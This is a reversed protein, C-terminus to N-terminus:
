NQDARITHIHCGVLTEPDLLMQIDSAIPNDGIKRTQHWADLDLGNSIAKEEAASSLSEKDFVEIEITFTYKEEDTM